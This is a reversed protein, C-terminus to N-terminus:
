FGFDAAAPISELQYSMSKENIKSSAFALVM